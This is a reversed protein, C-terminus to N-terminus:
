DAGHAANYIQVVPHCPGTGAHQNDTIHVSMRILEM